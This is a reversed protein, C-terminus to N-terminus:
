DDLPNWVRAFGADRFDKANRTAFETVGHHLLTQSLRVDFIRRRAFSGGSAARWVREMIGHGSVVDVVSWFVNSRMRRIVEVAEAPSAPRTCVAPNRLLCYLEMLVQECICFEADRGHERLFNRAAAHGEASADCASFLINTDCSTM